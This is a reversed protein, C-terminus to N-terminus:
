NGIPRKANIKLTDLKGDFILQVCSVNLVKLLPEM